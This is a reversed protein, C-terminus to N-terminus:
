CQYRNYGWKVISTIRRPFALGLYKTDLESLHSCKPFTQIIDNNISFITRAFQGHLSDGKINGLRCFLQPSYSLFAVNKHIYWNQSVLLLSYDIQVDDSEMLLRLLLKFSEVDFSESKAQWFSYMSTMYNQCTFESNYIFNVTHHYKTAGVGVCYALSICITYSIHIHKVLKIHVDLFRDVVFYPRMCINIM